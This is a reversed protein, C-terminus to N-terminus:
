YQESSNGIIAWLTGRSGVAGCRMDVNSTAAGLNLFFKEAAM